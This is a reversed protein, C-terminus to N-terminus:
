QQYLSLYQRDFLIKKLKNRHTLKLKRTQVDLLM